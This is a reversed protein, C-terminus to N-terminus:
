KRPPMIAQRAQKLEAAMKLAVKIDRAQTSKDGGCLLLYLELGNQMLYLRYGPGYDIRMESCGEGIPECDGFNGEGARRIRALIKAKGRADRLSAFWLDFAETATITLM